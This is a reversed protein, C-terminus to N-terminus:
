QQSSNEKSKQILQEFRSQVQQVVEKHEDVVYEELAAVDPAFSFFLHSPDHRKFTIKHMMLMSHQSQITCQTASSFFYYNYNSQPQLFLVETKTIVLFRCSLLFCSQNIYDEVLCSAYGYVETGSIVKCCDYVVNEPKQYQSLTVVAPASSTVTTPTTTVTATSNTTTTQSRPSNKKERKDELPQEEEEDEGIAFINPDTVHYFDSEIEAINDSSASDTLNQQPSTAVKEQIKNLTGKYLVIV